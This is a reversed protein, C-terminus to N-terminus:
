SGSRTKFPVYSSSKRDAQLSADAVSVAGSRILAAMKLRLNEKDYGLERLISALGRAKAWTAQKKSLVEVDRVHRRGGMLVAVRYVLPVDYGPQGAGEHLGWWIWYRKKTDWRLSQFPIRYFRAGFKAWVCRNPGDSFRVTGNKNDAYDIIPEGREPVALGRSIEEVLHHARRM